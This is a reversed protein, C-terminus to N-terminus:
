DSRLMLQAPKCSFVCIYVLLSEARSFSPAEDASPAHENANAPCFACKFALGCGAAYANMKMHTERAPYALFFTHTFRHANLLFIRRSLLPSLLRAAATYFDGNINKLKAKLEKYREADRERERASPEFIITHCNPPYAARPAKVVRICTTEYTSIKKNVM